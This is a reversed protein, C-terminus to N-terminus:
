YFMCLKRILTNKQNIHIFMVVAGGTCARAICAHSCVARLMRRYRKAAPCVPRLHLPRGELLELM